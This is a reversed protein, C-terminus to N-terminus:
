WSTVRRAACVESLGTGLEGTAIGEGLASPARATRDESSM